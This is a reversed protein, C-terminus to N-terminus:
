EMFWKFKEYILFDFLDPPQFIMFLTVSDFEHHFDKNDDNPRLLTLMDISWGGRHSPHVDSAKCRPRHSKHLPKFLAYNNVIIIIEASNYM